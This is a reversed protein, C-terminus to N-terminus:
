DDSLWGFTNAVPNEEGARQIWQTVARVHAGIDGHAISTPLFLVGSFVQGAAAAQAVLPAFDQYNRTVLICGHERAYQFVIPDSARALGLELIHLADVGKARIARFAPVNVLEDFLLRVPM